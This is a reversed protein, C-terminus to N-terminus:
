RVLGEGVLLGDVIVSTLLLGVFMRGTAEADAVRVAKGQEARELVNRVHRSVNEPVASRFVGGLQPLRPTESIVGRLLGLYDPHM